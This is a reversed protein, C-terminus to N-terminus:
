SCRKGDYISCLICKYWRIGLYLSESILSQQNM